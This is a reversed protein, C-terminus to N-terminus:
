PSLRRNTPLKDMGTKVGMRLSIAELQFSNGPALSDTNYTIARGAQPVWGDSTQVKIRSGAEDISVVTFTGADLVGAALTRYVGGVKFPTTDDVKLVYNTTM